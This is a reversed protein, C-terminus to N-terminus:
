YVVVPVDLNATLEREIRPSERLIRALNACSERLIRALNATIRPDNATIRLSERSECMRLVNACMRACEPVNPWLRCMDLDMSTDFCLRNPIHRDHLVCM